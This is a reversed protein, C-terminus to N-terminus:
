KVMSNINTPSLAQWGRCVAVGVGVNGVAFVGVGAGGSVVGVGALLTVGSLVSVNM